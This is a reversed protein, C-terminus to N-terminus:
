TSMQAGINKPKKQLLHGLNTASEHSDKRQLVMFETSGHPGCIGDDVAIAGLFNRRDRSLGLQIVSSVRELLEAGPNPGPRRYRSDTFCSVVAMNTKM